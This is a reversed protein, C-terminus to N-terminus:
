WTILHWTSSAENRKQGGEGILFGELVEYSHAGVLKANNVVFTPVATIGLATSRKWDADVAEKFSRTHLVAQAQDVPLGISGALRVLENSKGINIGEAYYARFMAEHFEAGKGLSEAWKSLEQALRSDYVKKSEGLPLGLELAVERQRLKMQVFDLNRGAFLEELTLGDEPIDPHLPFATWQVILDYHKRLQEIRV